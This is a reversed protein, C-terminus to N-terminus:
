GGEVINKISDWLEIHDRINAGDGMENWAYFNVERVNHEDCIKILTEPYEVLRLAEVPTVYAAVRDSFFKEFVALEADFCLKVESPSKCYLDVSAIFRNAPVETWYPLYICRHHFADHQVTVGHQSLGILVAINLSKLSEVLLKYFEVLLRARFLCWDDWARNYEMFIIRREGEWIGRRPPKIDNFDSFSTGWNENLQAINEYKEICWRQFKGITNRDYGIHRRSGRGWVVMSPEWLIVGPLGDVRMLVDNYEGVLRRIYEVLAKVNSTDCTNICNIVVGDSTVPRSVKLGTVRELARANPLFGYTVVPLINLGFKECADVVRDWYGRKRVYLGYQIDFSIHQFGLEHIKFLSERLATDSSKEPEWWTYFSIIYDRDSM